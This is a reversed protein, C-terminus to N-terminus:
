SKKLFALFKLIRNKLIAHIRWGSHFVYKQQQAAFSSNRSALVSIFLNSHMHAQATACIQLFHYRHYQQMIELDVFPITFGSETSKGPDPSIQKPDPEPM